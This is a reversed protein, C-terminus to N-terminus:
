FFMFGDQLYFMVAISMIKIILRKCAMVSMFRDRQSLLIVSSLRISTITSIEMSLRCNM